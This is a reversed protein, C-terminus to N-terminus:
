PPTETIDFDAIRHPGDLGGERLLSQYNNLWSSLWELAKVLRDITIPGSPISVFFSHGVDTDETKHYSAFASGQGADVAVFALVDGTAWYLDVHLCDEPRMGNDRLWEIEDATPHLAVVEFSINPVPDGYWKIRELTMEIPEQEIKRLEVGALKV